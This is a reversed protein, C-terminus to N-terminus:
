EDRERERQDSVRQAGVEGRISVRRQPSKKKKERRQDM